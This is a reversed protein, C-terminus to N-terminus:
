YELTVHVVVVVVHARVVLFPRQRDFDRCPDIQCLEKGSQVM